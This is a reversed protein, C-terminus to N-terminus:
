RPGNLAQGARRSPGRLWGRSGGRRSVPARLGLRRRLACAPLQFVECARDFSYPYRGSEACVWERTERAGEARRGAAITELADVLLLGLLRVVRPDDERVEPSQARAM